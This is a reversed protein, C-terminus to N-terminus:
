DVKAPEELRPPDHLPCGETIVFQAERTESAPTYGRGFSNDFVPCTCGAEIAAPSGPNPVTM